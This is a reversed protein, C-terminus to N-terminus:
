GKAERARCGPAARGGSRNGWARANGAPEPVWRDEQRHDEGGLHHHHQVCGDHVDRQGVDLLVQAEGRAGERPHQVGVDQREAAEHQEACPRTVQEAAPPHEQEADGDKGHARQETAQGDAPPGQQGGPTDLADTGREGCGTRQREQGGREGLARLPHPGDGEVRRDGGGAARGAEDQAAEEGLQDRPTPDHEHVDGDPDRHPEDASGHEDLGLAPVTVEVQEARDGAGDADAAHHEAEDLGSRLPPRAGQRQHREDAADDHEGEEQMVLGPRALRDHGQPRSECAM